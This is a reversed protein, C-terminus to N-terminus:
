RGWEGKVWDEDLHNRRKKPPTEQHRNTYRGMGKAGKFKKGKVEKAKKRPSPETKSRQAPNGTSTSFAFDDDSGLEDGVEYFVVAQEEPPKDGMKDRRAKQYKAREAAGHPGFDDAELDETIHPGDSNLIDHILQGQAKRPNMDAHRVEAILPIAAQRWSDYDIRREGKKKVRVFIMDVDTMTFEDTLLNCDRVFKAFHVNDMTPPGVDKGKRRDGFACFRAFLLYLPDNFDHNNTHVVHPHTEKNHREEVAVGGGWQKRAGKKKPPPALDTMFHPVKKDSKKKSKWIQEQWNEEEGDDGRGDGGKSKRPSKQKTSKDKRRPSFYADSTIYNQAPPRPSATEGGNGNEMPRM